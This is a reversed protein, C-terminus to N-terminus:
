GQNLRNLVPEQCDSFWPKNKLKTGPKVLDLNSKPLVLSVCTSVLGFLNHCASHLFVSTLMLKKEVIDKMGGDHVGDTPDENKDTSSDPLVMPLLFDWISLKTSPMLAKRIFQPIKEM